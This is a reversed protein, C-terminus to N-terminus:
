TVESTSSTRILRSNLWVRAPSSLPARDRVKPLLSTSGTILQIRTRETSVHIKQMRRRISNYIQRCRSTSSLAARLLSFLMAISNKMMM